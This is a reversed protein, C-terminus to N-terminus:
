LSFCFPRRSAGEAQDALVLHKLRTLHRADKAEEPRAQFRSRDQDVAIAVRAVVAPADAM